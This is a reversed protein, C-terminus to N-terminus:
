TAKPVLGKSYEAREEMTVKEGFQSELLVGKKTKRASPLLIDDTAPLWDMMHDLLLQLVEPLNLCLVRQISQM